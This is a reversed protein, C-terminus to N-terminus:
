RRCNTLVRRSPFKGHGNIYVLQQESDSFGFWGQYHLHVLMDPQHNGSVDVFSLFWAGASWTLTLGLSTLPGGPCRKEPAHHDIFLRIHHDWLLSYAPVSTGRALSKGVYFVPENEVGAAIGPVHTDAEVHKVPLGLAFLDPPVRM